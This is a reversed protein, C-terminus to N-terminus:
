IKGNEIEVNFRRCNELHSARQVEIDRLLLGYLPRCLWISFAVFSMGKASTTKMPPEIVSTWVTLTM